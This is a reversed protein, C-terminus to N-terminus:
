YLQTALCEARTILAYIGAREIQHPAFKEKRPALSRPKCDNDSTTIKVTPTTFSRSGDASNM